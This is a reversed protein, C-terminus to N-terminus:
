IAPERRGPLSDAGLRVKDFDRLRNANIINRISRVYKTGRESYSTLTRALEAGDLQGGRRRMKERAQRFSRYARHTNLNYVYARVAGLLNDFSKISHARGDERERPVLSGIQSFTWQGFIANGELAFRSTGWGSEEAAQALALSPPIADMRRDLEELNNRAVQFRSTLAALWLRDAADVPAEVRIQGRIRRLRQRDRRIEDNIKLVLPLVAKFFITKRQAPVRIRPMDAPLSMIFLPPVDTSGTRLSDLDYDLRSFAQTLKSVTFVPASVGVNRRILPLPGAATEFEIGSLALDAKPSLTQGGVPMLAASAILGAVSLGLIGIVGKEFALM